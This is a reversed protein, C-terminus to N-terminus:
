ARKSKLKPERQSRHTQVHTVCHAKHKRRIVWVNVKILPYNILNSGHTMCIFPNYLLTSQSNVPPDFRHLVMLLAMLLLTKKSLGLPWMTVSCNENKINTMSAPFYNPFQHKHPRELSPVFNSKVHCISLSIDCDKGYLFYAYKRNKNLKVKNWLESYLPLLVTFCTNISCNGLMSHM